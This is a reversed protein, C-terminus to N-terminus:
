SIDHSPVPMFPKAIFAFKRIPYTIHPICMICKFSRYNIKYECKKESM